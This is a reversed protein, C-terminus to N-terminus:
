KHRLSLGKGQQDKQRQLFKLPRSVNVFMWYPEAVGAEKVEHMNYYISGEHRAETKLVRLRLINMLFAEEGLTMVNYAKILNQGDGSRVLSRLLGQRMWEYFAPDGYMKDQRSLVLAQSVVDINALHAVVMAGYEDFAEKRKVPDPDNDVTYALSVLKESSDKGIPDYQPTLTYYTRLTGFEFKKPRQQIAQYVLTNYYPVAMYDTQAAAPRLAVVCLIFVSLCKLFRTM